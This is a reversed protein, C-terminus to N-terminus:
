NHLDYRGLREAVGALQFLRSIESIGCRDFMLHKMMQVDLLESSVNPEIRLSRWCCRINKHLIKKAKSVNKGHGNLDIKSM